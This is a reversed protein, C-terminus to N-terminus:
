QPWQPHVTAVASIGVRHLNDHAPHMVGAPGRAFAVLLNDTVARVIAHTPGSVRYRCPRGVACAWAMSGADFVGAGSRAVYYSADAASPAGGPCNTPSHLLVEIPRPTPFGTQIADTEPGILGPLTEGARVAVGHFLWNGPDVVVGPVRTGLLCAYQDGLLVSEPHAAPPAPWNATVEADNRGYLPDEDAVKYNIELRDPGVATPAFRIRRFIANAGLSALNTGRAVAATLGARMAPSWYEDHGLSIAARAGDLVHPDRELDVDTVYALPLRLREAEVLVPLEDVLFKGAGDEAAYPRDFSVARSRSAFSGDGGQYLDCCGWLNYAQWTTVANILVVRGAASAARVTLPVFSEHGDAAELRLLYDGPPWGATALTASVRWRATATRTAAPDFVPGPQRRGPLWASIRVVAAEARGYWGMRFVRVRFRPAGTSVFLRVPQGAAVSTTDAYGAIGGAARASIRWNADPALGAIRAGAASSSPGGSPAKGAPPGSAHRGAQGARGTCAALGLLVTVVAAAAVTRTERM